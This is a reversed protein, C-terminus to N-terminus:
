TSQLMALGRQAYQFAQLAEEMSVDLGHVGRNAIEIAYRLSQVTEDPMDGRSHLLQLMRGAGTRDPLKIQRRKAFEVLRTEIIRRLTALADWALGEQLRIEVVHLEPDIARSTRLVDPKPYEHKTPVESTKGVYDELRALFKNVRERVERNEAYEVVLFQGITTDLYGGLVELSDSALAAEFRIDEAERLKQRERYWDTIKKIAVSVLSTAAGALAAIIEFNM